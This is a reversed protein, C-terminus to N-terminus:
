RLVRALRLFTSRCSSSCCAEEPLLCSCGCVSVPLEYLKGGGVSRADELDAEQRVVSSQSWNSSYAYGPVMDVAHLMDYVHEHQCLRSMQALSNDVHSTDCYPGNMSCNM